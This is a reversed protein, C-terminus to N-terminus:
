AEINKAFRTLIKSIESKVFTDNSFIYLFLIALALSLFFKMGFTPPFFLVFTFFIPLMLGWKLDLLLIKIDYRGLLLKYVYINMVLLFIMLTNAIAAGILDFQRSLYFVGVLMIISSTVYTISTFKVKGMGTLTQHAPRNLSLTCYALILINFIQSYKSAYDPSIWIALIDRMWIICYSGLCGILISIYRSMKRYTSLLISNEGISTKLSAYPIMVETIQGTIISMRLSISTGVSYIGAMAPGLTMGVIIRDLQQFMAIATSELFMYLSFNLMRHIISIKPPIKWNISKWITLIYIGLVLLQTFLFWIAIGILSKKILCILIAGVLPFINSIFDMGRVLNNKLQSLLFGQPIKILFQPIIGIACIEIALRFEKRIIPPIDINNVIIGSIAWLIIATIIAMPLIIVLGSIIVESNTEEPNKISYESSFKNVISGIGLTGINSFSMTANLIAWLGYFDEGMKYIALPTLILFACTNVILFIFNTSIAKLYKNM